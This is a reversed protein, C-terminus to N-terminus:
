AQQNLLVSLNRVFMPMGEQSNAPGFKHLKECVIERVRDEPHGFMIQMTEEETIDPLRGVRQLATRNAPCKFQCRMCGELANHAGPEIWDPFDGGIENYLTVCRAVDIVFNDERIAQTPCLEICVRCKECQDLMKMEGWHDEPFEYDTFYALLTNCTGMDGVYCINNRGYRGLGSKVSLAKLPLNSAQEIRFGPAPIIEKFVLEDCDADDYGPLYYQPPLMVEHKQGKWHFNVYALPTYIGLAIIFKVNPLTEPPSFGHRSIYKRFNAQKSIKGDRDLEERQQRLEQLHEVRVTRYQYGFEKILDLPAKRDFEIIEM